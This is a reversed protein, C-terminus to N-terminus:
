ARAATSPSASRKRSNQNRVNMKCDKGEDIRKRIERETKKHAARNRWRNRGNKVLKPAAAAAEEEEEEKFGLRGKMVDKKERELRHIHHKKQKEGLISESSRKRRELYKRTPQEKGEECEIRGFARWGRTNSEGSSKYKKKTM